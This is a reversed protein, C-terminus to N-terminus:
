VHLFNRYYEFITVENVYEKCKEALLLTEKPLEFKFKSDLRTWDPNNYYGRNNSEGLCNLQSNLQLEYIVNGGCGLLLVLEGCGITCTYDYISCKKFNENWINKNIEQFKSNIIANIDNKKQYNNFDYSFKSVLNLPNVQNPDYKFKIKQFRHRPKEPQQDGLFSARNINPPINWYKLCEDFLEAQRTDYLNKNTAFAQIKKLNVCQIKGFKENSDIMYKYFTEDDKLISLPVIETVDNQSSDDRFYKNLDDNIVHLYEIVTEKTEKAGECIIYRESNAPRSTVPKHICIRDFCLYLLYVLGVSFPTFIDFIKCVFNGGTRLVSLACLFQCLYLQKSLIEQINENGEVSFGGDAMFCHVGRHNTQELVFQEFEKLNAKKTVDGDGEAGKEGYYTEFYAPSGALFDELKFDNEEKLTM